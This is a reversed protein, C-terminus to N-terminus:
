KVYQPKETQKMYQSFSGYNLTDRKNPPTMDNAFALNEFSCVQSSPVNTTTFTRPKQVSAPQQIIQPNFLQQHLPDKSTPYFNMGIHTHVRGENETRPEPSINSMSSIQQQGSTMPLYMVQNQGNNLSRHKQGSKGQTVMSRDDVFEGGVEIGSQKLHNGM